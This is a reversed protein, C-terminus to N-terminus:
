VTSFVNPLLLFLWFVSSKFVLPSSRRLDERRSQLLKLHDLFSYDRIKYFARALLALILLGVMASVMRYLDNRIGVANVLIAPDAIITKM